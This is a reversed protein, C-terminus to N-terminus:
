APDGPTAMSRSEIMRQIARNVGSYPVAPEILALWLFGWIGTYLSLAIASGLIAAALVWRWTPTRQLPPRAPQRPLLYPGWGLYQYREAEAETWSDAEVTWRLMQNAVLPRKPSDAPLFTLGGSKDEWLEYLMALDNENRSGMRLTDSHAAQEGVQGGSIL